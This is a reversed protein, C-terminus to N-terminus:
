ARVKGAPAPDQRAKLFFALALGTAIGLGLGYGIVVFVGRGVMQIPIVEALYRGIVWGAGGGVASLSIWWLGGMFKQRLIFWQLAGTWAAILSFFIVENSTVDLSLLGLGLYGTIWAVVTLIPWTWARPNIRRIVFWQFIATGASILALQILVSGFESLNEFENIQGNGAMGLLWGLACGIVTLIVWMLFTQRGFNFNNTKTDM